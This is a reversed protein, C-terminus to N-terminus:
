LLLALLAALSAVQQLTTLTQSFLGQGKPPIYVSDGPRVIPLTYREPSELYEQLDFRVTTSGCCGKHVIYIDELDAVDKPGGARALLDILNMEETMRHHGPNNLAGMIRVTKASQNKYNLAQQDPFFITDGPELEPILSQDGTEFYLALDIIVVRVTPSNRKIVRVARLDALATPGNAAALVDFFTEKGTFRYRGPVGIEGMLFVSEETNQRTWVAKNGSPLEPTRPIVVTDAGKLQPLPVPNTGHLYGYLDYYLPPQGKRKINLKSLDADKSPGSSEALLDLLTMEDSWEFRGPNTVAGVIHIAKEPAIKLWSTQNIDNKEPVFIADGPFILPIEQTGLGETYALLDFNEIEGNRRIVRIERTRAYRNPGGANALVDFFTVNEKSEYAGPRFVEGMVYVTRNGSKVEEEQIPVFITTGPAVQPLSQKSGSDLYGKLDFLIPDGDTLLRIQEVSAFRTVGGARMLLDVINQDGDFTFIGPNHVEGFIRVSQKKEAADGGSLLSQADFEVEVNGTLPSSPVFIVDLPKLEPMLDTNGSDLYQKYDLTLSENGRKIQVKDLQAGPKLGGAATLAMQLNGNGPIDVEGPSRVYGLVTLLLRRSQLTVTIRETQRYTLSLQSRVLALTDALTLGTVNIQGAEPVIIFGERNVTFPQEFGEEGPFSIKLTDGPNILEDENASVSLSISLLLSFLLVLWSNVSFTRPLHAM